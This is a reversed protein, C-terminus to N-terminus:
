TWVSASVRLAQSSSPHTQGPTTTSVTVAPSGAIITGAVDAPVDHLTLNMAGTFTSNPEVVITYTGTVPLTLTDVFWNGSLSIPELLNTGDPKIVRVTSSPITSNTAQLAVRQGATGAFVLLAIHNAATISLPKTEGPAIRGTFVVSAAMFPSPPVFFDNTSVATGGTTTVSIHGSTAAASVTGHPTSVTIPGTTAGAPVTVILQTASSANVTAPVGNFLVSNQARTLSFGTGYITVSSGAPGKDPTFELISVTTSRQRTISVINGAVDYNYIAADGSPTLVAKLRGVEDYLYITNRTPNLPPTVPSSAAKNSPTQGSSNVARVFPLITIALFLLTRGKRPM